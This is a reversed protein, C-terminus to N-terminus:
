RFLEIASLTEYFLRKEKVIRKKLRCDAILRELATQDALSSVIVLIRGGPAVLPLASEVFRVTSEIGAPGGHVTPDAFEKDDPLYPPNSVALDFRADQSLASAADCCVLLAFSKKRCLRLAEIDIDTGVIQDFRPRLADLVIGSGVGIELASHGSYKQVCEALLYSDEAPTYIM